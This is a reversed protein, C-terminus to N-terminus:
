EEGMFPPPPIGGLRVLAVGLARIPNDQNGWREVVHYGTGRRGEVFWTGGDTAGEPIRVSTPMTWFGSDRVLALLKTGADESLATQKEVVVTRKAVDALVVSRASWADGQETVRVAVPSVSGFSHVWLVRYAEIDADGCSM